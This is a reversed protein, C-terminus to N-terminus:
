KNETGKRGSFIYAQPYAEKTIGLATVYPVDGGSYTDMLMMDMYKNINISCYTDPMDMM